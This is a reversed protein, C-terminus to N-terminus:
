APVGRHVRISHHGKDVLRDALEIPGISERNHLFDLLMPLNVGTVVPV